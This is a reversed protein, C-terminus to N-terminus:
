RFRWTLGTSILVRPAESGNRATGLELGDSELLYTRASFTLALDQLPWVRAVVRPALAAERADPHIGWLFYADVGLGASVDYYRERLPTLMLYGGLQNGVFGGELERSDDTLGIFSLELDAELLGRGLALEFGPMVKGRLWFWQATGLARDLLPTGEGGEGGESQAQASGPLLLGLLGALAVFCSRQLLPLRM